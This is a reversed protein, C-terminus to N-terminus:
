ELKELKYHPDELLASLMKEGSEGPENDDLDLERLHSPNLKLAKVLAKCGKETISCLRLRLTELKCHQDELGASFLTVGSDCLSNGSLDLERLSSSNSSLVSALAACSRESLRCGSLRPCFHYSIC